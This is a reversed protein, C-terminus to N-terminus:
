EAFVQHMLISLTDKSNLSMFAQPLGHDTFTVEKLSMVGHSIAHPFYKVPLCTATLLCTATKKNQQHPESHYGVIKSLIIQSVARAKTKNNSCCFIVDGRGRTM